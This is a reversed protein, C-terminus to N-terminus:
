SFLQNNDILGDGGILLVKILVIITVGWLLVSSWNMLLDIYNIIRDSITM